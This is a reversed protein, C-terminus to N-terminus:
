TKTQQEIIKDQRKFQKEWVTLPVAWGQREERPEGTLNEPDHTACFINGEKDHKHTFLTM